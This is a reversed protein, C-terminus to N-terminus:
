LRRLARTLGDIMEEGAEEATMQGYAFQEIVDKFVEQVSPHEILPSMVPGTAEAVIKAGDLRERTLKGAEELTAKAIASAPLGRSDGLILIADKDNLLCNIVQAAAKQDKSHRSIAFVMSPKKYVGDSKAGEIKLPAAPVLKGVTLPDDYKSYTSDWFYTGGIRGSVWAPDDFIEVNGVAAADKASRVIGNDVMWQYHKLAGAIDEATWALENTGPKVFEQGSIQAAFAEIMLMLIVRTSDFPYVGDPNMKKAAAALDEWSKPLELGAKRYIEDSFYYTAGTVSVPVGNLKGEIMAPALQSDNWQSLDLDGSFQKLDAFGEGEKSFQFLWPWDVQIIDAETSGAMQTTLKELYGEFGAFEAKVKHGTKTTCYDLAKQTAVHRGDGGWWSMRLDAASAVSTAVVSTALSLSLAALISKKRM